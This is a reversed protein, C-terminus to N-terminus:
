CQYCIRLFGIQLQHAYCVEIHDSLQARQRESKEVARRLEDLETIAGVSRALQGRLEQIEREVGRRGDDEDM